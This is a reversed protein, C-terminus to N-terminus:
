EVVSSTSKLVHLNLAIFHSNGYDFSYTSFEAGDPGRRVLHPIGARAWSRLWHMTNTQELEHNGAVPYWLYNTGLYQDIVSRVADPPDLDGPGLMFEGPGVARMAECAGDFFRAGQTPSITFHRMDGATM